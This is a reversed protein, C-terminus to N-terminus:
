CIYTYVTLEDGMGSGGYFNYDTKIFDHQECPCIIEELEKIRNLQSTIIKNKKGFM